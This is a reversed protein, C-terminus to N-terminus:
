SKRRVVVVLGGVVVLAGVLWLWWQSSQEPTVEVSQVGDTNPATSNRTIAASTAEPLQHEISLNSQGSENNKLNKTARINSLILSNSIRVDDPLLGMNKTRGIPGGYESLVIEGTEVMSQFNNKRLENIYLDPQTIGEELKQFVKHSKYSVPYSVKYIQALDYLEVFTDVAMKGEGWFDTIEEGKIVRRLSATVIGYYNADGGSNYTQFLYDEKFINNLASDILDPVIQQPDDVERALAAGKMRSSLDDSELLILIDSVKISVSSGSEARLYSLMSFIAAIFILYKM